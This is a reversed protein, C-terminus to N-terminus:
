NMHSLVANVYAWDISTVYDSTIHRSIIEEISLGAAARSAVQGVYKRIQAYPDMISEPESWYTIRYQLLGMDLGNPNVANPNWHSEQMVQCYAYPWFWDLGREILQYRLYDPLPCPLVNINDSNVEQGAELVTDAVAAGETPITEVQTEHPVTELVTEAPGQDGAEEVATERVPESEQNAQSEDEEETEAIFYEDPISSPSIPRKEIDYAAECPMASRYPAETGKIPIVIPEEITCTPEEVPEPVPFIQTVPATEEPIWWAKEGDAPIFILMLAMVAIIVLVFREEDRHTTM